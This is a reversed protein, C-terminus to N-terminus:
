VNENTVCRVHYGNAKNSNNSTGYNFNVRWANSINTVYISSSWYDDALMGPLETAPNHMSHDVLDFLEHITPVRWDIGDRTSIEKAYNQATKFM